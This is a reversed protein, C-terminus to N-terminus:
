CRPGKPESSMLEDLVSDVVHVADDLAARVPESLEAVIEDEEGTM